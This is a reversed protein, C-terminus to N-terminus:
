RFSMQDLDWIRKLAESGLLVSPTGTGINLVVTVQTLLSLVFRDLYNMIDIYDLVDAVKKSPNHHYCLRPLMPTTADSPAVWVAHM